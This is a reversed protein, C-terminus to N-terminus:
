RADTRPAELVARLADALADATFPKQLFRTESEPFGRRVIEDDTYGSMYLVRLEPRSAALQEALASGSMDPMVVDTLLLDIPGAHAAARGLASLGDSADLVTYGQAELIRRTLTRVSDEDEVLLVTETGRPRAGPASAVPLPRGSGSVRPLYLTFRTGRGPESEVGIHGGSQKVIGYATPLGLGTGKGTPKTTFFPEFVRAQVERTMGCGTDTVALSVYPGPAMGAPLGREGEVIDANATSIVLTGGEPMADRANLALNVLVQEIQGPDALVLGLSPSLRILIGIDEGILRRLMPELGSVVVNLDLVRPQLLQKRSFALLQRTLVAARSSAKQIEELDAHLPHTISLSELALEAHVKIVTLLNNFDHAVGGALQGVAEMKQSQRLQAELERHRSEDSIAGIMRTPRGTGDRVIHARELVLAYSGDGRRMRYEAGWVANRSALTAHLDALTAVRDEPHLQAEWWAIGAGVDTPAHGLVTELAEGWYLTDARPDWDFVVDNTARTALRYREESERLRAEGLKRTTIDQMQSVFYMPVGVADRVLVANLAVWVGHGDRHIYRKEFQCCDIRGALADRLIEMSADLDAPETFSQFTRGLLESEEYGLIECLARNVRLWRGEPSTITMGIGAHDFAGRFRAESERLAEALAREAQLHATARRLSDRQRLEQGIAYAAHAVVLLREPTSQEATTSFDIAGIVEGASGRVPAGTCTYGHYARAFHEAGEVAVPEGTVLATGAGNTGTHAESWDFGPMGVTRIAESDTGTSHVVIGDCDVLYTLHPVSAYVSSLWELHPRAVEILEASAERRCALEEDSVRRLSVQTPKPDLGADRCRRWSELIIPRLAADASLDGVFREWQILVDGMSKPPSQVDAM